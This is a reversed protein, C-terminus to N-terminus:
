ILLVEVLLLEADKKAEVNLESEEKIKAAGLKPIHIGNLEVPGGGLIYFYAARGAGLTQNVKKGKELYCSYVAADIVIRLAGPHSNSIIPHFRSTRDAKEVKKQEVSPELSHTTPFFWFQIFCAWGFDNTDKQGGIIECLRIALSKILM